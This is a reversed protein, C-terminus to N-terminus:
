VVSDEPSLGEGFADAGFSDDYRGNWVWYGPQVEVVDRKLRDFQWAYLNVTYRQLKRLLDRTPGAFRLEEILRDAVAGYHVFLPRQDDDKILRFCDGVTRFPVNPADRVLQDLIDAGTDVLRGYFLGFYQRFADPHEPNFGPVTMLRKAIDEGKRLLGPRSPKPPVFVHVEGLCGKENLRGERNCRGAVQAVSDLGAWARYVVPFDIDVGAEVLQTSVVRISEGDKLRHKITAIVRSRHEGCM